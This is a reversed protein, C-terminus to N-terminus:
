QLRELVIVESNIKADIITVKGTSSITGIVKVGDSMRLANFILEDDVSASMAYVEFEGLKLLETVANNVPNVRILYSQQSPNSGFLYYNNKSNAVGKITSIKYSLKIERPKNTPNEVEHIPPQGSSPPTENLLIVRDNFRLIRVRNILGGVQFGVNKNLVSATGDKEVNITYLDYQNAAYKIKGDLGTWSNFSSYSSPLNYLGGTSKVLRYVEHARYLIDGNASLTFWYVPETDPTIPTATIENPNSVNLKVVRSNYIFYLNKSADQVIFESNEYNEARYSLDANLYFVAGDSKRILYNGMGLKAVFYDSNSIPYVMSPEYFNKIQNGNEDLFSVEEVVGSSTVKFLRNRKVTNDAGSTSSSKMSNSSPAIFLATSNRLDLKALSNSKGDVDNDKKCSSFVFMILGLVLFLCKKLYTSKM